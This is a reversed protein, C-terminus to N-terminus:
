LVKSLSTCDLTKNFFLITSDSRLLTFHPSTLDPSFHHAAAFFRAHPAPAADFAQQAAEGRILQLWTGFLADSMALSAMIIDLNM